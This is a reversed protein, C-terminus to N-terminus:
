DHHEEATPSPVRELMELPYEEDYAVGRIMSRVTAMCSATSVADHSISIVRIRGRVLPDKKLRVWDGVEFPVLIGSRSGTSDGTGSPRVELNRVDDPSFVYVADSGETQVVLRGGRSYGILTAPVWGGNGKVEIPTGVLDLALQLHPTGVFRRFTEESLERSKAEARRRVEQWSLSSEEPTDVHGRGDCLPCAYGVAESAAIHQPDEPSAKTHQHWPAKRMAYRYGDNWNRHIEDGTM